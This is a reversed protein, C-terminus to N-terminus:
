KKLKYLLANYRQTMANKNDENINKNNGSIINGHRGFNQNKNITPNKNSEKKYIIPKLSPKNGKRDENLIDEINNKRNENNKDMNNNIEQLDKRMKQIDQYSKRFMEEIEDDPIEDKIEEKIENENNEEKEEKEEENLEEKEKKKKEEEEEREENLVENFINKSGQLINIEEYLKHFDRTLNSRVQATQPREIIDKKNKNNEKKIKKDNFLDQSFKLKDENEINKELLDFYQKKWM